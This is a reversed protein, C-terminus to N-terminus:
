GDHSTFGWSAELRDNIADLDLGDVAEPDVLYAGVQRFTMRTDYVLAYLFDDTISDFAVSLDIEGGGDGKFVVLDFTEADSHVFPVAALNGDDWGPEVGWANVAGYASLISRDTVDHRSPTTLDM